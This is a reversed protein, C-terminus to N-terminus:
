PFAQWTTQLNSTKEDGPCAGLGTNLAQYLASLCRDLSIYAPLAAGAKPCGSLRPSRKLDKGARTQSQNGPSIPSTCVKQKDTRGRELLKPALQGIKLTHLTFSFLYQFNHSRARGCNRLIMSGTSVAPLFCFIHGPQHKKNGRKWETSQARCCSSRAPHQHRHTFLSGPGEVARFICPCIKFVLNM